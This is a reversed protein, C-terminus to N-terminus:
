PLSLLGAANAMEDFVPQLAQEVAARDIANDLIVPTFLLDPRDFAYPGHPWTGDSVIAGEVNLLSVLLM